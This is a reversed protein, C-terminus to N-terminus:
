RARGADATLLYRVDYSSMIVQSGVMLRGYGVPVPGGENLVNIPGSYLYSNALQTPDSSPNQIQRQEPMEPPKALLDALGQAMMMISMLAAMTNGAFPLSAAGIIINFIGLSSGELAPIIDINKIGREITIENHEINKIMSVEKGDIIVRYKSYANKRDLCFRRIADDSQANIAHIAEAASRASIEWTKKPLGEAMKGHLNVQVLNNM